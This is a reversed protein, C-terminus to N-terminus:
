IAKALSRVAAEHVISGVRAKAVAIIADQQMDAFPALLQAAVVAFNLVTNWGCM